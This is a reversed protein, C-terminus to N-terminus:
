DLGNTETEEANESAPEETAADDQPPATEPCPDGRGTGPGRYGARGAPANGASAPGYRGSLRLRDAGAFALVVIVVLFKLLRM